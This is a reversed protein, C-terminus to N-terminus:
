AHQDIAKTQAVAIALLPATETLTRLLSSRGVAELIAQM